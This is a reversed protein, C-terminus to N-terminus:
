FAIGLTVGARVGFGSFGGSVDFADADSGGKAKVEGGSFSPGLFLDLSVREKFIWQRGILVGGGFTNLDAEENSDELTMNIAQYRVFPAVYFGDPAENDGLYIRYEPTIGFGRYELDGVSVGTYYFGLQFSSKENIAQEFSVNLTRVIPSLINIKFVSNQASATNAALVSGMMIAALFLKRM